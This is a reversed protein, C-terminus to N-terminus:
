RTILGAAHLQATLATADAEARDRPIDYHHTLADAAQRPDAGDLLARLILAAAPNLQYYRGTRQDLLVTGEPTDATSIDRRLAPSM